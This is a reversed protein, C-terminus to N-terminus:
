NRVILAEREPGVSVYRLPCEILKEIEEVYNRAAEPLDEYRRVQTVDEDWGPVEMYVPTAEELVANLPFDAYEKGQWAYRTCIKLTKKGSLCDLKTLAVETAGQMKV